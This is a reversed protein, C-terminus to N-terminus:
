AATASFAEASTQGEMQELMASWAGRIEGLLKMVVEIPTRNKEVNAKRLQEHMFEYLGAMNRAFDGGKAHDLSQNLEDIIAQTKILNVHITENRRLFDPEEFGKVAMGMLKLAGDFLMLILRGPSATQISNQRYSNYASRNM